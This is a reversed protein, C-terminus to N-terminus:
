SGFGESRLSIIRSFPFVIGLLSYSTMSLSLFIEKRLSPPSLIRDRSLILPNRSGFGILLFSGGNPFPHVELEAAVRGGKGM